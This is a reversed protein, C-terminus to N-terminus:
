ALSGEEQKGGRQMADKANEPTHAEGHNDTTCGSRQCAELWYRLPGRRQTQFSVDCTGGCRASGPNQAPEGGTGIDASMINCPIFRSEHYCRCILLNCNSIGANSCVRSGTGPAVQIIGFVCRVAGSPLSSIFFNIHHINKQENRRDEPEPKASSANVTPIAGCVLARMMRSM